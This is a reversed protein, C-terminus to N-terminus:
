AGGLSFPLNTVCSSSDSKFHPSRRRCVRSPGPCWHSVSDSDTGRLCKPDNPPVLCALVDCWQLQSQKHLWTRLLQQHDPMKAQGREFWTGRLSGLPRQTNIWVWIVAQKELPWNTRLVSGAASTKPIVTWAIKSIDFTKHTSVMKTFCHCDRGNM